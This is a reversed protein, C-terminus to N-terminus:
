VGQGEICGVGKLFVLVQFRADRDRFVMRIMDWDWVIPEMAFVNGKWPGLEMFLSEKM